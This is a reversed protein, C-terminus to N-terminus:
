AAKRMVTHVFAEHWWLNENKAVNLLNYLTYTHGQAMSVDENTGLVLYYENVGQIASKHRLLLDGIEYPGERM